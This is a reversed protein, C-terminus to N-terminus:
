RHTRLLVLMASQTKVSSHFPVIALPAQLHQACAQVLQYRMRPQPYTRLRALSTKHAGTIKVLNSLSPGQMRMALYAPIVGAWEDTMEADKPRLHQIFRDPFALRLIKDKIELDFTESLYAHLPVVTLGFLALQRHISIYSRKNLQSWDNATYVGLKKACLQPHAAMGAVVDPLAPLQEAFQTVVDRMDEWESDASESQLLGLIRKIVPKM